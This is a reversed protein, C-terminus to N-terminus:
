RRRRARRAAARQRCRQKWEEIDDTALQEGEVMSEAMKVLLELASDVKQHLEASDQKHEALVEELRKDM